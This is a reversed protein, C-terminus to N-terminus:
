KVLVKKGGIIYIGAQTISKIRRGQLDYILSKDSKEKSDTVENIGEMGYAYTATINLHSEITGTYNETGETSILGYGSITPFVLPWSSGAEHLSSTTSLTTGEEDVCTITVLFYPQVFYTYIEIPHGNGSNWGVLNGNETGDWMQGNTGKICWSRGDSNLTFTFSDGTTSATTATSRVLSPIYLGYYENKVKFKKGNAELTWVATPDLASISTTRNVNGNTTIKRYGKRAGSNDTSADYFVYSNGGQLDNTVLNAIKKVGSFADTTFTMQYTNDATPTIVSGIPTESNEFTYYKVDPQELTFSSGVKVTNENEQIIAGYSDVCRVIQSYANRKYVVNYVHQDTQNMSEIECNKITPCYDETINTVSVPISRQYTGLSAGQNDTCNFTVVNVEEALWTAGQLRPADYTAGSITSGANVQGTSPIPFLSYNGIKLRSEGIEPEYQLTIEVSSSSLTVPYGQQSVYSSTAAIFRGTGVNKLTIQQTGDAKAEGAETVQWANNSFIDTSHSLNTGNESGSDVINTSDFGSVANKFVYTSGQKLGEFVIPETTTSSEWGYDSYPSFEWYGGSGSAPDTYLNVALGQGAMSSNWYQGSVQDSSITYYYNDGKAGYGNAGLTFNYHKGTNDYDWRGSTSSATPTPKVSGAPIAKCVIAYKGSGDPDKELSWWQYDYNDADATAQVNTWLRGAKANKGSYETILSSNESLLEICRDKRTDDTGGSIIRYYYSAESTSALPRTMNDTETPYGDNEVLMHYRCYKYKGYDLLLTDATMRQQFDSFSRQSQPTWGAEAIAILRPLALWEMYDADSVHECWFTGQVGYSTETPISQNYTAQVDDSGTGAGPPDFSSSGQKRNIYYPGWPTYINKLGLSTAKKVAAEPSTWCYVTAEADKVIQTDAGDATIAENWVALKHGNEQVFTSLEKIFHSQLQRYSTLGLEEYQDQCLENSEWQTTPCEDGGIHVTEYPFLQMLEQLIDKVFQVADPNAVNLVDSSIGGDCWITPPNDPNCSYEPYAAMAAVFHGPMDIEPIIEIHLNKAYEVVEKIQEQTYFYPGYPQNIWYQTCSYMDTFRSNPSISGVSTLKPYKKIEVRWGQDDTLHWHFRNMKYYAMVNLMRKIEDVTFFHRSVDLMFGRYEFRPEDSITVVPLTYSTVSVDSVGAMVNAPLMKKVTQFAYFFGLATKAKVKVKESSVTLEYGEDSLTSTSPLLEAQVLAESNELQAQATYGTTQNFDTVFRNVESIMQEDFSSTYSVVFNQPFVLVGDGVTMSKPKPTLNVFTQAHLVSSLSILLCLVLLLRQKM